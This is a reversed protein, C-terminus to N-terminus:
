SYVLFMFFSRIASGLTIKKKEQFHTHFHILNARNPHVVDYSKEILDKQESIRQAQKTQRDQHSVHPKKTKLNSIPTKLIFDVDIHNARVELSEHVSIDMLSSYRIIEEVQSQLEKHKTFKKETM